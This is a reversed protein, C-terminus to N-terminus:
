FLRGLDHGKMRKPPKFGRPVPWFVVGNADVVEFHTADGGCRCCVLALATAFRKNAPYPHQIPFHCCHSRRKTRSLDLIPRESVSVPANYPLAGFTDIPPTRGATQIAPTM